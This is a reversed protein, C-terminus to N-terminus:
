LRYPLGQARYPPARGRRRPRPLLCGEAGGRAPPAQGTGTPRCTGAGRGRGERVSGCGAGLWSRRQSLSALPPYQWCASSHRPRVALWLSQLLPATALRDTSLPASVMCDTPTVQMTSPSSLSSQTSPPLPHTHSWVFNSYINYHIHQTDLRYSSDIPSTYM